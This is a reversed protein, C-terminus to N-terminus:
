VSIAGKERLSAIAELNGLRIVVPNLTMVAQTPRWAFLWEKEFAYEGSKSFARGLPSLTGYTIAADIGAWSPLARQVARHLREGFQEPDSIELCTDASGFHGYLQAAPERCLSLTLYGANGAIREGGAGPRQGAQRDDLMPRLRFEGEALARENWRREAFRFLKPPRNTDVSSMNM